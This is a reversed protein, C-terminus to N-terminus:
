RFVKRMANFINLYTDETGGSPLHIQFNYHFEPRLGSAGQNTTKDGGDVAQEEVGRSDPAVEAFDGLKAIASFTYAIKRALGEDAGAVQAILGRLSEMSLDNAKENAGFLPEYARRVGAAIALKARSPNKLEGYAPTPRNTADLFGLTRLFPILARDTSGKLGITETLFAHTFADPQKASAIKGFLTGVNKYSALYPLENPM